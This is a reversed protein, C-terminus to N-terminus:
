SMAFNIIKQKNVDSKEVFFIKQGVKKVMLGLVVFFDM